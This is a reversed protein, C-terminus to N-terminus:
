SMIGHAGKPAPPDVPWPTVAERAHPLLAQVIPRCIPCDKAHEALDDLNFGNPDATMEAVVPCISLDPQTSM